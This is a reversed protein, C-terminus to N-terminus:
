SADARATENVVSVSPQQQQVLPTAEPGEEPFLSDYSPPADKPDELPPATATPEVFRLEPPVGDDIFSARCKLYMWVVLVILILSTVFVFM